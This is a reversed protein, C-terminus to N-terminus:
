SFFHQKRQIIQRLDNLIKNTSSIYRICVTVIEKIYNVTIKLKRTAFQTSIGFWNEAHLIIVDRSIKDFTQGCSLKTLSSSNSFGIVKLMTERELQIHCKDYTIFIRQFVFFEALEYRISQLMLFPLYKQINLM